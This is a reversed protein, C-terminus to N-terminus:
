KAPIRKPHKNIDASKEPPSGLLKFTQNKLYAYLNEGNIITVSRNGLGFYTNGRIRNVTREQITVENPPIIKASSDCPQRTFPKKPCGIVNAPNRQQMRGKTKAHSRNDILSFFNLQNQRPLKKNKHVVRRKFSVLPAHIAQIAEKKNIVTQNATCFLLTATTENKSTMRIPTVIEVESRKELLASETVLVVKTEFVSLSRM